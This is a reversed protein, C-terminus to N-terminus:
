TLQNFKNGMTTSVPLPRAQHLAHMGGTSVGHPPAGATM